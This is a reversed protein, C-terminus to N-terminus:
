QFDFGYEDGYRNVEEIPANRLIKEEREFAGFRGFILRDTRQDLRVVDPLKEDPLAILLIGECLTVAFEDVVVKYLRATDCLMANYGSETKSVLLSYGGNAAIWSGCIRDSKIEAVMRFLEENFRRILNETRRAVGTLYAAPYHLNNKM